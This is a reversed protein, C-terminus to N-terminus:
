EKKPPWMSRDLFEKGDRMEDNGIEKMKLAARNTM